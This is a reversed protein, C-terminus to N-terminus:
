RVCTVYFEVTDDGPLVNGYGLNVGYHSGSSYPTSSWTYNLTWGQGKMAGSDYLAKLEDRTPLRWGTQGNIATNTCYANAGSWNKTSSNIPMWTLGGQSVFGTPRSATERKQREAAAAQEQKRKAEAAAAERRQTAEATAAERKIKDLRGQALAAFQGQPYLSLYTAYSDQSSGQQATNWAQQDQQDAAARAEDKLRKLRTKALAIFKGKPYQGLYSQYDEEANGKKVEEWLATEPDSLNVKAPPTEPAAPTVVAASSAQVSAGSLEKLKTIVQFANCNECPVSNSFEAKNTAVNRISLALLYGGEIKTINATAILEAQFAISVSQLCRTEDCDKKLSEKKFIENVKNAVNDGSFVEYKQQLGQVLATEISGQMHLESQNLRLPMLVLREKEVKAPKVLKAAHAPYSFSTLCILAIVVTLVNRM